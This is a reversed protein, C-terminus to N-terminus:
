GRLYVIGHATLCKAFDDAFVNGRAHKAPASWSAPKHIDGTKIKGLTKNEFDKAAVFAYVSKGTVSGDPGRDHTLIKVWKDSSAEAVHIAHPAFTYGQVLWHKATVADAAKVLEEIRVNLTANETLM